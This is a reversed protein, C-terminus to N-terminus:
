MAEWVEVVQDGSGSAIRQGDPSWALDVVRNSPSRYTDRNRGTVADWVRVTGDSCAFASRPIDAAWVVAIRQASSDRCTYIDEPRNAAGCVDCFLTAPM